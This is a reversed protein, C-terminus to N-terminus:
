QALYREILKTIDEVTIGNDSTLYKEILGTIDEVTIIDTAGPLTLKFWNVYDYIVFVGGDYTETTKWGGETGTLYFPTSSLLAWNQSEDGYVNYTDIELNPSLVGSPDLVFTGDETKEARIVSSGKLGYIILASNTEEVNVRATDMETWFKMGGIEPDFDYKYLEAIFDYPEGPLQAGQKLAIGDRLQVNGAQIGEELTFGGDQLTFDAYDHYTYEWGNPTWESVTIGSVTVETSDQAIQQKEIHLKNGKITAIIDYGLITSLKVTNDDVKDVNITETYNTNTDWGARVNATLEYTGVIDDVNTRSFDFYNVYDYLVFVGGLNDSAWGNETKTITFPTSSLLAWNQSEDGYENKTDIELNSSLVGSPNLSYTGDENKDAKVISSGKLGYFYLGDEREEVNAYAIDDEDWFKMGGIEPDFEYKYLSAHFQYTQGPLQSGSKLLIGDRVQVNGIQIGEELTFFGNNLSFTTSDRYTYVWGEAGWTSSTIGSVTVETSDKAAQQKEIYLNGDVVKAVVEAGYITSLQVHSNDVRTVEVNETYDTEYTWTSATYVNATLKYNGVIDATLDIGEGLVVVVKTVTLGSGVINIGLTQALKIVNPELEFAASTTGATIALTGAAMGNGYNLSVTTATAPAEYSLVLQSGLDLDAFYSDEVTLPSTWSLTQSGEFVILEEAASVNCLTALSLLIPLLVKKM